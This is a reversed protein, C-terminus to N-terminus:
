QLFRKLFTYISSVPGYNLPLIERELLSSRPEIGRPGATLDKENTFEESLKYGLSLKPTGNVIESYTPLKDFVLGFLARLTTFNKQKLLMEEHHEMLYKAYKVFDHIDNEKVELKNREGQAGTIQKQIEEIQKELTARITQNQTNTFADIKQLKEKELDVVNNNAKLSFEGIEKEKERYKNILTAEFSKFFDAKYKLNNIFLAIQKEFEKKSVGYQKHGRSCHYAPFGQGSKGKSVSGLFPKECAPCLIVSKFPFLPNDKIRKLSHPNFNKHITINGDAKEEIFKAGKNAKNFTSVSVLGSYQTKIPTSLWKQTNIGCYITNAIIHQFHKINLKMGGTSGIVREKNKAWSNRIRSRYGMANIQDVIEKDTYIGLARLEFMKIFFPAYKPDAEQIPKKRGDVFMKANIYGERPPGIHYGARVLAIEAGITRTLIQNVESKGQQAMVLETIESPRIRSWDYEIGLHELTNKSPQIVGYSDILQVGLSELENKMTEYVLTGSRTFRDIGRIICYKVNRNKKVFEKLDEYSPRTEKRGSFVDFFPKDNPIIRLNRAKAVNICINNQDLISEGNQFQKSSSVRLYAVADEMKQNIEPM